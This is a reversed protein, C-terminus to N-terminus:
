FYIFFNFSFLDSFLKIQLEMFCLFNFAKSFNSLNNM